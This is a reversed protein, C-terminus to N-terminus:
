DTTGANTESDPSPESEAEVKINPRAEAETEAEGEAESQGTEQGIDIDPSRKTGEEPTMVEGHTINLAAAESDMPAAGDELEAGSGGDTEAAPTAVKLSLM